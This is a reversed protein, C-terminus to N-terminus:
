IEADLKAIEQNWMVNATFLQFRQSVKAAVDQLREHIESGEKVFGLETLKNILETLGTLVMVLEM